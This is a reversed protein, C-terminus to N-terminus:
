ELSQLNVILIMKSRLVLRLVFTHLEFTQRNHRCLGIGVIIRNTNKGQKLQLGEESVVNISFILPICKERLIGLESLNEWKMELRESNRSDGTSHHKYRQNTRMTTTIDWNVVDNVLNININTIISPKKISFLGIGQIKRFAVLHRISYLLQALSLTFTSPTANIYGYNYACIKPSLSLVTIKTQTDVHVLHSGSLRKTNSLRPFSYFDNRILRVCSISHNRPAASRHALPYSVSFVVLYICM